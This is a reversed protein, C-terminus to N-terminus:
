PIVSPSAAFVYDRIQQFYEDAEDKQRPPDIERVANCAPALVESRFKFDSYRGLYFTFPDLDTAFRERIVRWAEKKVYSDKPNCFALAGLVSEGIKQLGLTVRKQPCHFLYIGDQAM